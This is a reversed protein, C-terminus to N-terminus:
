AASRALSLDFANKVSPALYHSSVIKRKYKLGNMERSRNHGTYYKHTNREHGTIVMFLSTGPIPHTTQSRESADADLEGRLTRVSHDGNGVIQHMIAQSYGEREYGGGVPLDLNVEAAPDEQLEAFKAELQDAFGAFADSYERSYISRAGRLKALVEDPSKTEERRHEGVFDHWPLGPHTARYMDVNAIADNLNDYQNGISNKRQKPLVINLGEMYENELDDAFTRMIPRISDRMQGRIASYRESLESDPMPTRGGAQDPTDFRELMIEALLRAQRITSNVEEARAIDHNGSIPVVNGQHPLPIESQLAVLFTLEILEQANRGTALYPIYSGPAVPRILREDDPLTRNLIEAHPRYQAALEQDAPTVNPREFVDQYNAPFLSAGFANAVSRLLRTETRNLLLIDPMLKSESGSLDQDLYMSRNLDTAGTHVIEKGRRQRPDRDVAAGM